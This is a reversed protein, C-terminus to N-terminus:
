CGFCSGVCEACGDTADVLDDVVPRLGLGEDWFRGWQGTDEATDKFEVPAGIKVDVVDSIACDDAGLLLSLRAVKWVDPHSVAVVRRCRGAACPAEHLGLFVGLRAAAKVDDRSAWAAYEPHQSTWTSTTTASPDLAGNITPSIIGFTAISLPLGVVAIGIAKVIQEFPGPTHTSSHVTPPPPPPAGVLRMALESGVPQANLKTGAGDILTVSPMSLVGDGEVLVELLTPHRGVPRQAVEDLMEQPVVRVSITGPLKHRIRSALAPSDDDFLPSPAREVVACGDGLRGADVLGRASVCGAVTVVAVVAAVAAAIAPARTVIVGPTHGVGLREDHRATGDAVVGPANM